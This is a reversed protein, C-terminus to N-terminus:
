RCVVTGPPAGGSVPTCNLVQSNIPALLRQAELFMQRQREAEVANQVAIASNIRQLETRLDNRIAIKEAELEGASRLEGRESKLTVTYFRQLARINPGKQPYNNPVEADMQRLTQLICTSSYCGSNRKYIESIKQQAPHVYPACAALLVLPAAILLRVLTSHSKM